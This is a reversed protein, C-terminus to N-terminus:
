ITFTIQPIDVQIQEAKAIEALYHDAIHALKVTVEAETHVLPDEFGSFIYAVGSDTEPNWGHVQKEIMSGGLPLEITKEVTFSAKVLYQGPSQMIMSLLKIDM